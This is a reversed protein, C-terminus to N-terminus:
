AFQNQPSVQAFQSLPDLAPASAATEKAFPAPEAININFNYSLM